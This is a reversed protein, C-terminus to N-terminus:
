LVKVFLKLPPKPQCTLIVYDLYKVSDDISFDFNKLLIAMFYTIETLALQYGICKHVGDGFPMFADWPINDTPELFREPLFEEPNTWYEPNRHMECFILLIDTDAPIKYGAIEDEDISVRHLWPVPSFLRLSEYVVANLYTLQKLDDWDIGNKHEAFFKSIEERCKKQCKPHKVLLYLTWTVGLTSTEHGAILFTMLLDHIEKNYIEVSDGADLIFDLLTKSNNMEDHGGTRKNEIKSQVIGEVLDHIQNTMNALMLFSVNERIYKPMYKTLKVMFRKFILQFPLVSFPSLEVGEDLWSRLHSGFTDTDFSCSEKFDHGFAILGIVDLTTKNLIQKVGIEVSNNDSEKCRSLFLNIMRQGCM